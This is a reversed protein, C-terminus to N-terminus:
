PLQRSRQHNKRTYEQPQIITLTGSSKLIPTIESIDIYVVNRAHEATVHKFKDHVDRLQDELKSRLEEMKNANRLVLVKPERIKLVGTL